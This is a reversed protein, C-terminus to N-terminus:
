DRQRGGIAALQPNRDSRRPHWTPAAGGTDLAAVLRTAAARSAALVTKVSGGSGGAFTYVADIVQRLRLGPVPHYSDVGVVLRRPTGRWGAPFRAAATATVRAALDPDPRPDEAALDWRHDPLGLLVEGGPMSRGYLGTTEDVFAPVPTGPGPYVGFQIRKTRLPWGSLGNTALLAGTWRGAAVVVADCRVTSGDALRCGPYETLATVPGSELRLGRRVADAILADRLRHPSIYGARREYLAVTDGPLGRWGYRDAVETASLVEVADPTVQRLLNVHRPPTSGACVYLSGIEQYDAWSRLVPSDLLEWLSAVADRCCDPDPEFGRVLGGSVATADPRNGPNDTFLHVRLESQDCVLRWALAAGALGGGVIGVRSM